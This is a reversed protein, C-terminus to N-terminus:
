ECCGFTPIAWVDLPYVFHLLYIYLAINSLRSFCRFNENLITLHLSMCEDEGAPVGFDCGATSCSSVSLCQFGSFLYGMGLSLPSTETLYYSCCLWSLILGWVWQTPSWCVPPCYYWLLDQVATFIRPGGDPNWPQPDSHFGWPIQSRPGASNSQLVKVSHPPFLSEVRRLCLCFCQSCWSQGLSFSCSGVPSLSSRHSNSPRRHLHPQCQRATPVICWWCLGPLLINAYTGESTAM